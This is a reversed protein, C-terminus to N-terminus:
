QDRSRWPSQITIVVSKVMVQSSLTLLRFAYVLFAYWRWIAVAPYFWHDAFLDAPHCRRNTHWQSRWRFAAGAPVTTGVEVITPSNPTTKHLSKHDNGSNARFAPTAIPVYSAAEDATEHLKRQAAQRRQPKADFCFVRTAGVIHAYSPAGPRRSNLCPICEGAWPGAYQLLASTPRASGAL